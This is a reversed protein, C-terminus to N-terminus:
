EEVEGVFDGAPFRQFTTNNMSRGWVLTGDYKNRWCESTVTKMKPKAPRGRFQWESNWATGGWPRWDFSESCLEIEWGQSQVRALDQLTDLDIWNTTM